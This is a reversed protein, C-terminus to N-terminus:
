QGLAIQEEDDMSLDSNFCSSPLSASQRSLALEALSQVSRAISLVFASTENVLNFIM